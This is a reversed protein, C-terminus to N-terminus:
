FTMKIFLSRKVQFPMTFTKYLDCKGFILPGMELVYTILHRIEHLTLCMCTKFTNAVESTIVSQNYIVGGTETLSKLIIVWTYSLIDSLNNYILYLKHLRM